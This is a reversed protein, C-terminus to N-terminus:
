FRHRTHSFKGKGFAFVQDPRVTFVLVKVSEDGTFGDDDPEYQWRGDWKSAWAASLRQLTSSDTVRVAKGEVVVDLGDDWTNCGTMLVVKENSRLNAAKQEVDGTCFHLAGDLWVAVLPTMHPRGDARVTAIWFLEAEELTQRADEWSTATAGPESCDPNLTTTPTRLTPEQTLESREPKASKARPVTLDRVKMRFRWRRNGIRNEAIEVLCRATYIGLRPRALFSPLDSSGTVQALASCPGAVGSHSWHM